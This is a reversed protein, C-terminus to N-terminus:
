SKMLKSFYRNDYFMTSNHVFELVKHMKDRDERNMDNFQIAIGSGPDIRAVFGAAQLRGDDISFIVKLKSGAPMLTSTEVYCGGLSVDILNGLVPVEGEHPRLEITVRCKMRPYLRRNKRSPQKQKEIYMRRDAEALLAEADKGDEPYLAQGVSLSLIDESCVEQGALRALERLSEAKKAAAEATLGPAVVVFEDGGMRAVYDYERCSEKLAQAFLRLVRNGELHGFRDNIQKFGDMDSVMVVLSTSDRKCRALERDLQLFLSRANPLGTLYDTVASTEAQEYKVANEIALAMKSSIALLIRLHDSTFADTEAHYLALVGVVGALGELPIALASRLTSFKTPDNLYGPEVSPNGNIIPKRNQAVWGSLGSGLPIRLSSFLRHNDGSVLEPILEAERKVYIAIADYPVLRRLKVSFVSLTEGLSLSAGLDQSLEFLTQAEQRAAAISSLFTAEQGPADKVTIDEFGAAPAAGAEVKMETSLPTVPHRGYTSEVLKELQRYRRELVSVVKPDFSKGSEASLRKMVEELPLARRYQRDSAMADLFDVSSLIRAGIPIEEGKLGYPYGSGDWKEHHARVIPVVPYPFRIRELIEAGVVPHIKMKEFEEPTLRGPKSIIHEPVALKGIDHLLAAAHLAEMESATVGLEKAVEIAYIRVRQLHDHTTHDKAEIALALAEITRLHLTAMEEVHRKEDELKGLYLRYSRYILYIIPVILLSTEWGFERNFWGIMGAFGAGVLYYPFSWFYCEVWIRRISKRETLAIVAAISGTNAAFYTVAALGLLLPHSTVQARSVALHYLNYAIAISMASASLNFTVQIPSPRDRYFCQVLIAATALALTEAFSLELIGLLIFLFNVSMTGTIGPLRVKLRAALIAILLYCIFQAINKSTPRVAGYLLVCTGAVVVLSIFVKAGFSLERWSQSGSGV